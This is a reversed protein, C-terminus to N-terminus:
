ITAITVNISDSSLISLRSVLRQAIEGGRELISLHDTDLLYM